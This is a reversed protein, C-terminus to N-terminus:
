VCEQFITSCPQVKFVWYSGGGGYAICSILYLNIVSNYGQFWREKLFFFAAFKGSHFSILKVIHYRYLTGGAERERYIYIYIASEISTGLWHSVDNCLLTTEWQSPAFRSDARYIYIVFTKKILALRKGSDQCNLPTHRIEWTSGAYM